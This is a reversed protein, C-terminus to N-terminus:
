KLNASVQESELKETKIGLKKQKLKLEYLEIAFIGAILVTDVSCFIIELLNM